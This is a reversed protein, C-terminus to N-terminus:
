CTTYTHLTGDRGKLSLTGQNQVLLNIHKERKTIERCVRDVEGLATVDAKLFEVKGDKNLEKCEKIIREAAAENRGVIYVRPSFANKV